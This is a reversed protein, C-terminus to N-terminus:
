AAVAELAATSRKRSVARKSPGPVAPVAGPVEDNALMLYRACNDCVCIDSDRLLTAYLGSALRMMCGTCVGRRVLAVAKKGRSVLRDYHGLVTEPLQARLTEAERRTAPSNAKPGLDLGQLDFLQQIIKM